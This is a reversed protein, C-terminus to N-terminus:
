GSPATSLLGEIAEVVPELDDHLVGPVTLPEGPRVARRERFLYRHIETLDRAYVPFGLKPLWRYKLTRPLGALWRPLNAHAWRRVPRLPLSFIVLPRAARAVETLMSMSDGTVVFADAHAMLGLYPNPTADGWTWLRASAPLAARLAAEAAAGTRRSTVVYLTGGDAYPTAADLLERAVDAGLDFPRTSGGVLVAVLPKPLSGLQAQWKARAAAVRAPDARMLPLGTHVVQTLDNPILHQASVVILAFKEPKARPRGFLVIRSTNGSRKRVWLAAMAPRSGATLILDPWPPVLADSRTRDLHYLSALPLPKGTVFPRKFRLRKHLVPWPLRDIVAQVQANDGGKDGLVAWIVPGNTM